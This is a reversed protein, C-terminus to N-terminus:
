NFLSQQRQGILMVDGQCCIVPCEGAMLKQCTRMDIGPPCGNTCTHKM